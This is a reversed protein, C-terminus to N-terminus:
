LKSVRSQSEIIKDRTELNTKLEENTATLAKIQIDKEKLARDMENEAKFVHTAEVHATVVIALRKWFRDLDRFGEEIELRVVVQFDDGCSRPVFFSEPISELHGKEVQM